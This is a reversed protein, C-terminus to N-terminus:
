LIRKLIREDINNNEM